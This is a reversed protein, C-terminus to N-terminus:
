GASCDGSVSSGHPQEWLGHCSCQVDAHGQTRVGVEVALERELM